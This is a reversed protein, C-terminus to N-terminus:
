EVGYTRRAIEIDKKFVSVERAGGPKPMGMRRLDVLMEATKIAVAQSDLLPVGDIDRIGHEALFANIAAFGPVLIGAGEDIPTKAIARIEAIMRQPDNRFAAILDTQGYGLYGGPVMRELLGYRKVISTAVQLPHRDSHIVAFKPALQCATHYTAECSFVVPIDVVERLERYGLDRMGGIVFADFGEREARIAKEIIQAVHLYQVYGSLVMKPARTDVDAFHVQTDPRTLTPIYRECAESYDAWKPDLEPSPSYTQFWIKM